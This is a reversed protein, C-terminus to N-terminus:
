ATENVILVQNGTSARSELKRHADAAQSLPMREGIVPRVKGEALFQMFTGIAQRAQPKQLQPECHAGLLWQFAYPLCAAFLCDYSQSALCLVAAVSQRM